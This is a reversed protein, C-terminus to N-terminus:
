EDSEDPEEEPWCPLSFAKAPRALLFGQLLDCGALMVAELEANTEIGEAVTVFNLERGLRVMSEIVRQNTPSNQLGRILEIDFKVVDPQLQAFSNLGAYGAGLDDIAIRFGRDRLVSIRGGLDDIGDLSARETVELVIQEPSRFLPNDEAFFAPDGLTAPHLNVFLTDLPSLGDLARGVLERIRQEVELVRGTAEATDFLIGPHPFEPHACRVLVEHGFVNRQLGRAIPQFVLSLEDLVNPLANAAASPIAGGGTAQAAARAEVRAQLASELCAILDAQECPKTLFRFIGADNIARITAELSAQGSLIIRVTDPSEAAVRTLFESGSMVPMREDSVVVDIEQARVIELGAAASNATLLEWPQKRLLLKLNTTVHEEDDVFLIRPRESM